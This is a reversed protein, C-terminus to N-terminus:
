GNKTKGNSKRGKKYKITKAYKKFVYERLRQEITKRKKMLEKTLVLYLTFSQDRM